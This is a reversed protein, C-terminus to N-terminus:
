GFFQETDIGPGDLGTSIIIARKEGQVYVVPEGYTNTALELVFVHLARNGPDVVWYEEVGHREYLRRNEGFAKFATTPSIIKIIWDTAGTCGKKTLKGTNKFFCDSYTRQLKSFSLGIKNM